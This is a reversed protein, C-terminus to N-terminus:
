RTSIRAAIITSWGRRTGTTGSTYNLSIAQWEDDPLSWEFQTDGEALLDEYTLDGFLEGSEDLDDEIDIVLPRQKVSELARKSETSFSKDTIFAKSEAHELIFTITAADLRTNITNLVAGTMPVGFSAEYVPPTNPALVSVTDGAGIGRKALASALRRTREYTERWTYRREGHILAPHGPYVSAARRIFSLPSLAVHNAPNRELDTEYVNDSSAPNAM